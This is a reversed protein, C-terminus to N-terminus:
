GLYETIHPLAQDVTLMVKSDFEIWEAYNLITRYADEPNDSEAILVGGSGDAAVYNAKAGPAEGVKGFVDMMDKTEAKSLFPKFKYTTVFIMARGEGTLRHNFRSRYGCLPRWTASAFSDYAATHRLGDSRRMDRRLTHIM